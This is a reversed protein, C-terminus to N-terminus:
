KKFMKKVFTMFIDVIKFRIEINTNNDHLISNSPHQICDNDDKIQYMEDTYCIPPFLTLIGSKTNANASGSVPYIFISFTFIFIAVLTLLHKKLMYFEKDDTLISATNVFNTFFIGFYDLVETYKM